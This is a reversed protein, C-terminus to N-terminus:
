EVMGEDGVGRDLSRDMDFKPDWEGTELQPRPPQRFEVGRSSLDRHYDDLLQHIQGMTAISAMQERIRRADPWGKVYWLLHKRMCIAGMGSPGYAEEQWRLHSKVVELWEDRGVPLHSGAKIDRFLWPNGLAGRSVMLGDVGAERTMRAADEVTFINGNGIVPIGLAQKLDAIKEVQVQNQYTDSRTRGHLTLWRAGAEEAARGVELYNISQHDWGLRIKVSVARSTAECAAKTTEYVRKQDRLIASGCGANVVKRVPCGMNLDISDFNGQDLIRVAEGMEVASRSTVQVGLLAEAPHRTMMQLTRASNHVLATASLMEVYTLDAGLMACVRRFPYDSVGALPALLAPAPGAISHLTHTM